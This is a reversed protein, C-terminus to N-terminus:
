ISYANGYTIIEEKFKATFPIDKYNFLKQLLEVKGERFPSPIKSIYNEYYFEVASAILAFEENM